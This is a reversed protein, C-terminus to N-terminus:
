RRTSVSFVPRLVYRGHEIQEHVSQYIYTDLLKRERQPWVLTEVVEVCIWRFTRSARSSSTRLRQRIHQVGITFVSPTLKLEM